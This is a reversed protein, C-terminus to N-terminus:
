PTEKRRPSRTRPRTSLWQMLDDRLLVSRRGIAYPTLEFFQIARRIHFPRCACAIAAQEVSYALQRDVSLVPPIPKRM